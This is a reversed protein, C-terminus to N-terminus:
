QRAWSQRHSREHYRTFTLRERQANNLEASLEDKYRGTVGMASSGGDQKGPQRDGIWLDIASGDLRM